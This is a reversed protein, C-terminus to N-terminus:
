GEDKMREGEQEARVIADTVRAIRSMPRVDHIRIIHAGAAIAMSVSAATGEQRDQEPLDLIQGIFRKRSPGILIPCDLEHFADLSKLILLNDSVRKGFGIGPDIIIRSRRVGASCLAGIRGVLWDKIEGITDRYYPNRQMNEPPGQAHMVVVPVDAQAVVGAMEQDATLGSVDNVILAGAAIAQLAVDAKRTDISIPIDTAAAIHEIVPIVRRLEEDLSVAESGPRTSEGGVDIIDAGEDIMRLAHSVAAKRDLYAGGDSFSDPTVNLVGMIHTRLSLDLRLGPGQICRDIV